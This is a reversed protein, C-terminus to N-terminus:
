RGLYDATTKQQKVSSSFYKKMVDYLEPTIIKQYAKEEKKEELRKESENAHLGVLNLLKQCGSRSPGGAQLAGFLAHAQDLIFQKLEDVTNLSSDIDPPDGATVSSAESPRSLCAKDFFERKISGAPLYPRLPCTYTPLYTPLYPPPLPVSTSPYYTM